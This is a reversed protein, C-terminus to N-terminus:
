EITWLTDGSKPRDTFYATILFADDERWKVVVCLHKAGVASTEHFRHYLRVEPDSGSRIVADPAALTEAIRAEEGAM